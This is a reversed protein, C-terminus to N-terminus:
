FVTKRYRAAVSIVNSCLFRLIEFMLQKAERVSNLFFRKVIHQFVIAWLKSIQIVSPRAFYRM